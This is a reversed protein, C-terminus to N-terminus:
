KQTGFTTRRATETLESEIRQGQDIKRLVWGHPPPIMVPIRFYTDKECVKIANRDGGGINKKKKLFNKGKENIQEVDTALPYRGM